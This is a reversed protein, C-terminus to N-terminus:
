LGATAVYGKSHHLSHIITQFTQDKLRRLLPLRQLALALTQMKQELHGFRDGGVAVDGCQKM